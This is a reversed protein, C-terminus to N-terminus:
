PMPGKIEKILDTLERITGATNTAGQQTVSDAGFSQTKDTQLAKIKALMQSSSFWASGKVDTTIHRSVVTGDPQTENSIDHLQAKSFACGSLFLPLGLLIIWAGLPPTDALKKVQDVAERLAVGAAGLIMGTLTDGNTLGAYNLIIQLLMGIFPAAIPLWVRPIKPVIEKVAAIVLPTAGTVILAWWNPAAATVVPAPSDAAFLSILSLCFLVTMLLLVSFVSRLLHKM